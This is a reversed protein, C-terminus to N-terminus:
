RTKGREEEEEEEEAEEEEDPQRNRHAVRKGISIYCVSRTLQRAYAPIITRQLNNPFDLLETAHCLSYFRPHWLQPNFLGSRLLLCPDVRAFLDNHTHVLAHVNEGSAVSGENSHATLFPPEDTLKKRV